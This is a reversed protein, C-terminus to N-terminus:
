CGPTGTSSARGPIPTSGRRARIGDTLVTSTWSRTAGPDSLKINLLYLLSADGAAARADDTTLWIRGGLDSPGPGSAWNGWPYVATAASVATGVVPYDRGGITVRDGVQM